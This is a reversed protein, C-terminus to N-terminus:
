ENDGNEHICLLNSDCFFHVENQCSIKSFTFHKIKKVTQNQLGFIYILDEEPRLVVAEKDNPM